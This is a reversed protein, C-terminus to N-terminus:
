WDKLTLELFTASLLCVSFPPFFSYSFTVLLEQKGALVFRDAGCLCVFRKGQLMEIVLRSLLEYLRQQLFIYVCMCMMVMMINPTMNLWKEALIMM